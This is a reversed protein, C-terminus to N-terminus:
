RQPTIPPLEFGTNVKIASQYQRGQGKYYDDRANLGAKELKAARKDFASAMQSPNFSQDGAATDYRTAFRQALAESAMAAAFQMIADFLGDPIDAPATGGVPLQFTGPITSAGTYYLTFNIKNAARCLYSDWELDDFWTYNFDVALSDSELPANTLSVQGSKPNPVAYDTNFILPEGDEYMQPFLTPSAIPYIVLRGGIITFIKNAGDQTGQLDTFQSVFKSDYWDDLLRRAADVGNQQTYQSV